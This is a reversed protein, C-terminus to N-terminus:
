DFHRGGDLDEAMTVPLRIAGARQGDDDHVSEFARALRLVHEADRLLREGGSHVYDAVVLAITSARVREGGNEIM